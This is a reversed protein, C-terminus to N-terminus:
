RGARRGRDGAGGAWTGRERHWRHNNAPDSQWYHGSETLMMHGWYYQRRAMLLLKERVKERFAPDLDNYLWDYLMAVGAMVNSSGMGADMEEGLQWHDLATFMELFGAGAALSKKDGTLVYHLGVTPMRWMGQRIGDTDNHLFDTKEPPQCSPLYEMLQDFFAKGDTEAFRKMAPVDAASFLLRPHQHAAGPVLKVVKFAPADGDPPAQLTPGSAEEAAMVGVVMLSCWLVIFVVVRLLTM